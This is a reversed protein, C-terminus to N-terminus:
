PLAWGASDPAGRNTQRVAPGTVHLIVADYPAQTRRQYEVGLGFGAAVGLGAAIPLLRRATVM